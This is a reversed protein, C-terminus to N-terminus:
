EQELTYRALLSDQWYSNTPRRFFDQFLALSERRRIHPTIEVAPAMERYLPNLETLPLSTGGGMADEYAYVIRRVGNLLLTAYCMLCPEMTAYLTLGGREIEPQRALLGRLAVIEAHDLETPATGGSNQRNGEAVVRGGAVIVAGVPFEGAQLAVRAQELALGMFYHHQESQDM